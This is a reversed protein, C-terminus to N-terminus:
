WDGLAEGGAPTILAWYTSPAVSPALTRVSGDALAILMGSRHPTQAFFGNCQSILPAVQFTISPDPLYSSVSVAPNASPVPYADAKDAFTARHAPFGNTTSIGYDTDDCSAYHEAFAITNSCGDRFTTLINPQGVFVVANAAYSTLQFQM